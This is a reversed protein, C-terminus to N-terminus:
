RTPHWRRYFAREITWAPTLRLAAIEIPAPEIFGTTEVDVITLHRMPLEEFRHIMM